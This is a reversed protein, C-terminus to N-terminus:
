ESGGSVAVFSRRPGFPRRVLTVVALVVLRGELGRNAAEAYQRQNSSSCMLM